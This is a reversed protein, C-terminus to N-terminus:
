SRGSSSGIKRPALPPGSEGRMTCSAIARSRPASPRGSVAVGCASRWENALCAAAVQARDLFQEAMRRERGRLDVGRDVGLLQEFGVAVRV